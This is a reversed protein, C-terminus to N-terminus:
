IEMVRPILTVMASSTYTKIGDSCSLTFISQRTIAGTPTAASATQTSLVAGSDNKLTCSTMNSTTWSLMSTNGSRVRPPNATLQTSILGSPPQVCNGNQLIYGSNCSTCSGAPGQGYPCQNVVTVTVSAGYNNWSPYSTSQLSPYFIYSGPSLPTFVYSKPSFPAGQPVLSNNTTNPGTLATLALTDGSGATYTGTITASQGNYITVGIGNGLGASITATPPPPLAAVNVTISLLPMAPVPTGGYYTGGYQQVWRYGNASGPTCQLAYTTTQSPAVTVSGVLKGATSFGQGVSGAYDVYTRTGGSGPGYGNCNGFADYSNCSGGSSLYQVQNDQCAWDITISTGAPVSPISGSSSTQYSYGTSNGTATLTNRALIKKSTDSTIYADFYTPLAQSLSYSGAMVSAQNSSHVVPWGAGVPAGYLGTDFYPYSSQWLGAAAASNAASYTKLVTSGSLAVAVFLLLAAGTCLSILQRQQEHSLRLM